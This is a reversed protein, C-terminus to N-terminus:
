FFILMPFSKRQCAWYHQPMFAGQSRPEPVARTFPLQVATGTASVFSFFCLSLVCPAFFAQCGAGSLSFPAQKRRFRRTKQPAIFCGMFPLINQPPLGLLFAQCVHAPQTFSLVQGALIQCARPGSRQFSFLSLFLCFSPGQL